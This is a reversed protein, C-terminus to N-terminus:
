ILNAKQITVYFFYDGTLTTLLKNKYLIYLINLTFIFDMNDRRNFNKIENELNELDDGDDQRTSDCLSEGSCFTDNVLTEMIWCIFAGLDTFTWIM